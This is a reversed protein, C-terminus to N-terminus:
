ERHDAPWGNCHGVEHRRYHDIIPDPADQDPLIIFCAKSGDQLTVYGACGDFQGVGIQECFKRAEDLPLIREIVPGPYAHDYQAPPLTVTPV